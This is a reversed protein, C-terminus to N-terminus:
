LPTKNEMKYTLLDTDTTNTTKEFLFTFIRLLTTEKQFHYTHVYCDHCPVKSFSYTKENSKQQIPHTENENQENVKKNKYEYGIVFHVGLIQRSMNCTFRSSVQGYQKTTTHLYTDDWCKEKEKKSQTRWCLGYHVV